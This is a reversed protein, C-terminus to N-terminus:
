KLFFSFEPLRVEKVSASGDNEGNQIAAQPLGASRIAKQYKMPPTEFQIECSTNPSSIVSRFHVEDNNM